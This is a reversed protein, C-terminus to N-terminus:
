KSSEYVQFCCRLGESQIADLVVRVFHALLRHVVLNVLHASADHGGRLKVAVTLAGDRGERM